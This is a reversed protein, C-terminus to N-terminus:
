KLKERQSKRLDNRIEIPENVEDDTRSAMEEDEGIVESSILSRFENTIAEDNIVVRPKGGVMIPKVSRSVIEYIKDEMSNQKM